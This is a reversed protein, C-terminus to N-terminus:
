AGEKQARLADSNRIRARDIKIRLSRLEGWLEDDTWAKDPDACRGGLVLAARSLEDRGFRQFLKQAQDHIAWSADCIERRSPRVPLNTAQFQYQIKM